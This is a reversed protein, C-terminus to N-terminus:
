TSADKAAKVAAKVAEPSSCIAAIDEWKLKVGHKKTTRGKCWVLGTMTAYCDGLQSSGNPNRVELEIGNQKVQMEVDFSKVWVEM